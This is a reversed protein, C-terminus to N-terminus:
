KEERSVYPVHLLHKSLHNMCAIVRSLYTDGVIGAGQQKLVDYSSTYENLLYMKLVQRKESGAYTFIRSFHYHLSSLFSVGLCLHVCLTGIFEYAWLPFHKLFDTKSKSVNQLPLCIFKPFFFQLLCAFNSNFINVVKHLHLWKQQNFIFFTNGSQSM